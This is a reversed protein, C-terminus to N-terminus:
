LALDVTREKLNLVYFSQRPPLVEQECNNVSACISHCPISVM